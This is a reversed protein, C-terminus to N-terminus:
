DVSKMPRAGTTLPTHGIMCPHDNCDLDDETPDARCTPFPYPPDPSEPVYLYKLTYIADGMQVAGNDDTDAADMCAPQPADPVYLAQLTYIADAMEITSDANADARLFYPQNELIRVCTYWQCAVALEMVGDGNVDASFVAQPGGMTQYLSPPGFTGDGNNLIVSACHPDVNVGSLDLDGDGDLDAASVSKITAGGANSMNYCSYPAFTGNGYNLLVSACQDSGTVALDLNGDEDLDAAVLSYPYYVGVAYWSYPAFTGDGYNLLISIREGARNTVALDLDGDRDLDAACVSNANYAVAFISYSPFTGDGDNLLVSVTHNDFSPTALDLDGDGDLDAGCVSKPNDDVTYVMQSAFTGDGYNLLISVNNDMRNAVALDLDGDGDLDGAFVSRPYNGVAYVAHPGFTWDGYNLLVSVTNDGPDKAVPNTEGNTTALDLDGDGDLDAACVAIPYTGVSYQPITALDFTGFGGDVGLTFSWIYSAELPTGGSSEIENTLIVTVVEGVAFDELPNLTATRTPSDYTITGTHPGTSRARVVFTSDNITTEDMDIDFMVSIDTFLVVNLENQAPATSVVHPTQAFSPVATWFLTVAAVLIM